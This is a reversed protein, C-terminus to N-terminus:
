DMSSPLRPMSAMVPPTFATAPKISNAIVKIGPIHSFISQLSKSHQYGQGWGRGIVARIILPVPHKGNTAYCYSSITNAIQNMGLLLFDVRIHNYVTVVGSIASGLAFGTLM